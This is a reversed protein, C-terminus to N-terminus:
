GFRLNELKGLWDMLFFRIKYKPQGELAGTLGRSFGAFTATAEFEAGTAGMCLSPFVVCWWNKGKGEGITIRLSEYLGAPLRFTDYDRTGFAEEQLTVGVADGCGAMELEKQALSRIEPLQEMLQVRAAEFDTVDALKEQLFATVADRVHLKREQDEASDSDAVVHLRIVHERLYARDAVSCGLQFFMWLALCLSGLRVLKRM